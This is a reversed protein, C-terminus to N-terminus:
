AGHFVPLCPNTPTPITGADPIRVSQSDEALDKFLKALERIDTM